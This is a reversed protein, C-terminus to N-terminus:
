VMMSYGTNAWDFRASCSHNGFVVYQRGVKVREFGQIDGLNRVLMYAARVGLPWRQGTNNALLEVMQPEVSRRRQRCESCQRKRGLDCQRHNGCLLERGTVFRVWHGFADVAACVHRQGQQRRGSGNGQDALRTVPGWGQAGGFCANNRMEPRVRLDARMWLNKIDFNRGIVPDYLEYAEAAHQSPNRSIRSANARPLEFGAFAPLTPCGCLQSQRLASSPPWGAGDPGDM